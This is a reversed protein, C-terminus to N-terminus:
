RASLFGAARRGNVNAVPIWLDRSRLNGVARGRYPMARWEDSRGTLRQSGGRRAASGGLRRADEHQLRSAQVCVSFEVLGSSQEAARCHMLAAGPAPHIRALLAAVKCGHVKQSKRTSNMAQLWTPSHM